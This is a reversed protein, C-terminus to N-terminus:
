PLAERLDSITFIKGNKECNLLEMGVRNDTNRVVNMNFIVAVDGSNLFIVKVADNINIKNTHQSAEILIGGNSIDITNSEFSGVLPHFIKVRSNVNKRKHKRREDIM